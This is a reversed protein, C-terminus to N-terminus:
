VGINLRLRIAVYEAYGAGVNQRKFAAVDVVYLGVKGPLPV